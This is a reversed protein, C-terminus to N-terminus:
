FIEQFLGDGGVAVVGDLSDLAEKPSTRILEQAENAEKTIVVHSQIGALDFLPKVQNKWIVPAQRAGGFPNVFVWLQKPREKFQSILENAKESWQTIQMKDSSAFTFRIPTWIASRKRNREFSHIVLKHFGDDDNNCLGFCFRSSKPEEHTVSIVDCLEVRKSIGKLYSSISQDYAGKILFCYGLNIENYFSRLASNETYFTAKNLYEIGKDPHSINYLNGLKHYVDFIRLSDKMSEAIDLAEKYYSSAKSIDLNQRQSYSNGLGVKINFKYSIKSSFTNFLSDAKLYYQISKQSGHSTKLGLFANATNMYNILLSKTNGQKSLLSAGLQYYTIAKYYDGIAKYCRGLESYSKATKETNKFLIIPNQFTTISNNYEKNKRYSLGLFYLRHQWLLTDIIPLNQQNEISAQLTKIAGPYNKTKYIWTSYEKFTNDLLQYKRHLRYSEIISDITKIKESTTRDSKLLLSLTNEYQSFGIHFWGLCVILFIKSFL